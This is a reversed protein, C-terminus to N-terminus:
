FHLGQAHSSVLSSVHCICVLLEWVMTNLEESSSVLGDHPGDNVLRIVEDATKVFHGQTM